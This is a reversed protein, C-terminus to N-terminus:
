DCESVEYGEPLYELLSSLREEWKAANAEDGKAKYYDARLSVLMIFAADDEAVQPVSYFFQEDIDELKAGESLMGQITLVRELVLYSPEGKVAEAAALMDTKGSAYELPVANILFLYLSSPAVFTLIVLKGGLAFAAAGLALFLANLVIGGLTTIILRRKINKSKLPMVTCSASTLFPNLRSMKVKMGSMAGFIVHGLEHLIVAIPFFAACLAIYGILFWLGGNEYMLWCGAAAVALSLVASIVTVAARM